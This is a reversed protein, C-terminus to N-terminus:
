SNLETSKLFDLREAKKEKIRKHIKSQESEVMAQLRSVKHIAAWTSNIAVQLQKVIIWDTILGDYFNDLFSKMHFSDLNLDFDPYLDNLEKEFINFKVQVLGVLKQAKDIYGKKEYSSYRGKGQMKYIGWQKVYKLNQVMKNLYELLDKGSEIAEETEKIILNNVKLQNDILKLKGAKDGHNLLIYREKEKLLEEYLKEAEQKHKVKRKLIKKEYNLLELEDVLSNYTLVEQLYEQREKELQSDIDGLISKFLNTVGSKELREVDALEDNMKRKQNRLDHAVIDLENEIIILRREANIITNINNEAEELRQDINNISM